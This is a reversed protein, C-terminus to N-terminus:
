LNERSKSREFGVQKFSKANEIKSFEESIGFFTLSHWEANKLLANKQEFEIFNQRFKTFIIASFALFPFTL